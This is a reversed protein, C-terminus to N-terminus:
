SQGVTRAESIMSIFSIEWPEVAVYAGSPVCELAINGWMCGDITSSGSFDVAM